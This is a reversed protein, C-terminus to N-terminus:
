RFLNVSLLDNGICYEVTENLYKIYKEQDYDYGYQVLQTLVATFDILEACPRNQLAREQLNAVLCFLGTRNAGAQCHVYTHRTSDFHTIAAFLLDLNKTINVAVHEIDENTVAFRLSPLLSTEKPDSSSYLTIIRDVSLTKIGTIHDIPWSGRWLKNPIEIGFNGPLGHSPKLRPLLPIEFQRNQIPLIAVGFGRLEPNVDFPLAM